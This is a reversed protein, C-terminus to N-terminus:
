KISHISHRGDTHRQTEMEPDKSKKKTPPKIIEDEM